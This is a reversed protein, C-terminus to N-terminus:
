MNGIVMDTSQDSIVGTHAYVDGTFDELGATGLTADFYITVMQGPTPLDPDSTIIQAACLLPILLFLLTLPLRFSPKMPFLIFNKEM